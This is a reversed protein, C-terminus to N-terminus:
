SPEKVSDFVGLAFCVGAIRAVFFLFVLGIVIIIVIILVFGMIEEQARKNSAM